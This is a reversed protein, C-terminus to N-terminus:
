IRWHPHPTTPQLATYPPLDTEPRTSRAIHVSIGHSTLWEVADPYIHEDTVLTDIRSLPCVSLSASLHPRSGSRTSGPWDIHSSHSLLIIERARDMLLRQSQVRLSDDQMVGNLGLSQCSVFMRDASFHRLLDDNYPNFIVDQTRLLEGGTITVTILPQNVLHMFVPLATTLIHCNINPMLAAMALSTPAGDIIASIGPEMFGIALRAIAQIDDYSLQSGTDAHIPRERTEATASKVIRTAGGHVRRLLGMGELRDLDRRITTPSMGLHEILEAILTVRDRTLENMIRKQRDQSHM